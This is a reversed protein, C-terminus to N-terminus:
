GGAHRAGREDWEARSPLAFGPAAGFTRALAEEPDPAIQDLYEDVADRIVGALPRGEARAIADLRRRQDSTLYIQTRLAAM